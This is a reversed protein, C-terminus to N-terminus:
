QMGLFVSIFALDDRDVGLRAKATMKVDPTFKGQLVVVRHHFTMHGAAIAVAHVTMVYPSGAAFQQLESIFFAKLAMFFLSPREYEFMVSHSLSALETVIRMTRYAIFHKDCTLASGTDPAMPLRVKVAIGSSYSGYRMSKECVYASAALTDVAM